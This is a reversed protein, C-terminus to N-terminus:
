IFLNICEVDLESLIPAFLAKTQTGGPLGEEGLRGASIALLSKGRNLHM